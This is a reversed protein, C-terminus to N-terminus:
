SIIQPSSTMNGGALEPGNISPSSSLQSESLSPNSPIATHSTNTAIPPLPPLPPLSSLSPPQQMSLGSNGTQSTLNSLGTSNNPSTTIMGSTMNTISPRSVHISGIMKQVIPLYNNYELVSDANFRFYYYKDDNLVFADVKKHPTLQTTDTSFIIHAPKNDLVIPFSKDVMGDRSDTETHDKVIQEISRGHTDQPIFVSLYPDVSGGLFPRTESPRYGLRLSTDIMAM